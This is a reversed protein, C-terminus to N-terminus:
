NMLAKGVGRRHYKPHVVIDVAELRIDGWSGFYQTEAAVVADVFKKQRIPDMDRKQDEPRNTGSVSFDESDKWEWVSLGAIIWNDREDQVEAVLSITKPTTMAEDFMRIMAKATDEPYLKRYPRRWQFQPDIEYGSALIDIWADRDHESLTRIRPSTKILTM